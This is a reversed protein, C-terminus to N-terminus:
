GLGKQKLTEQNQAIDRQQELCQHDQLVQEGLIWAALPNLAIQACVLGMAGIVEVRESALCDQFL